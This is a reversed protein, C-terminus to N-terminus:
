IMQPKMLQIISNLQQENSWMHFFLCNEISEEGQITSLEKHGKAKKSKTPLRINVSIIHSLAIKKQLYITYTEPCNSISILIFNFFQKKPFIKALYKYM